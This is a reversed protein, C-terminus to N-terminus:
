GIGANTYSIATFTISGDANGSGTAVQTEGEMVKFTFEGSTMAKM